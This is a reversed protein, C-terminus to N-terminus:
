QNIIFTDLIKNTYLKDVTYDHNLKNFDSANYRWKNEFEPYVKPYFNYGRENVLFYYTGNYAKGLATNNVYNFHDIPILAGYDRNRNVPDRGYIADHYRNKNFGLQLIEYTNNQHTYFTEMGIFQAQSVQSNTNKTLPSMYLTFMSISSFIILIACLGLYLINKTYKTRFTYDHNILLYYYTSPILIFSFLIAYQYIRMFGFASNTVLLLFSVLSIFAFGISSMHHYYKINNDKKFIGIFIILACVISILGLMADIGYKYTFTEVLQFLDLDAYNILEVYKQFESSSEEKGIISMIIPNLKNVAMYLYSSWMSFIILPVLVLNGINMKLDNKNLTRYNIISALKLLSFIFILMLITLPHYFVMFGCFCILLLNFIPKNNQNKNRVNNARFFLYLVFPILLTSQHFPTFLSHLIGFSLISSFSLMLLIEEKNLFIQKGVLYWSLVFFLSFIPPVLMVIDTFTIGTCYNIIIGLLHNIPYHNSGIDFYHQIDLMYGIHTLVDGRGFTFYRSIPISLLTLNSLIILFFGYIWSKNDTKWYSNLVLCLQGIIICLLITFWFFWPYVNYLSFEYSTASDAKLLVTIPIFLLIFGV